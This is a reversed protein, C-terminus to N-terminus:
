FLGAHLVDAHFMERTRRRARWEVTDKVELYFWFQEFLSLKQLYFQAYDSFSDV